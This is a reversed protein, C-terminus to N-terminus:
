DAARTAVFTDRCGVNPPISADPLTLEVLRLPHEDHLFFNL